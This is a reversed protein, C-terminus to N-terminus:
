DLILEKALQVRKRRKDVKEARAEAKRAEQWAQRKREEEYKAQLHAHRRELRVAEGEFDVTHVASMPFGILPREDTYYIESNSRWDQNGVYVIYQWDELEIRSVHEFSDLKDRMDWGREGVQFERGYDSSVTTIGFIKPM